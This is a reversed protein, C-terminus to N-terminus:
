ALYHLHLFILFMKNNLSSNVYFIINKFKGCSLNMLGYESYQRNYIHSCSWLSLLNRMLLLDLEKSFHHFRKKSCM